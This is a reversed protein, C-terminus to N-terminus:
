TPPEPLPQWHTVCRDLYNEHPFVYFGDDANYLAVLRKSDTYVLITTRHEPLRDNVDIWDDKKNLKELSAKLMFDLTRDPISCNNKRLFVYAERILSENLESNNM